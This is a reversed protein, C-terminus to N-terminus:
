RATTRVFCSDIIRQVEGRDRAQWCDTEVSGPARTVFEWGAERMCGILGDASTTTKTCARHARYRDSGGEMAETAHEVQPIRPLPVAQHECASLALAALMTPVTLRTRM